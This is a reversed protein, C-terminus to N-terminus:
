SVQLHRWTDAHRGGAVDRWEERQRDPDIATASGVNGVAAFCKNDYCILDNTTPNFAVGDFGAANAAHGGDGSPGEVLFYGQSGLVFGSGQEGFYGSDLRQAM